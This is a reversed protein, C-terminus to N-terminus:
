YKGGTYKTLQTGLQKKLKAQVPDYLSIMSGPARTAYPLVQQYASLLKSIDTTSGSSGTGSSALGTERTTVKPQYTLGYTQGFKNLEAETGFGKEAMSMTNRLASEKILEDLQQQARTSTVDFQRKQEGFQEKQLGLQENYKKAELDGASEGLMAAYIGYPDSSGSSGYGSGIMRLLNQTSISM